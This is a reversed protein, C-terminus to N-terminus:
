VVRGSCGWVLLLFGCPFVGFVGRVQHCRSINQPSFLFSKMKKKKKKVNSNLYNIFTGRGKKEKGGSFRDVCNSTKAPCALAAHIKYSEAIIM